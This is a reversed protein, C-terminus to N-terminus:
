SPMKEVSVALAETYTLDVEDGVELTKLFNQMDPDDVDVTREIKAPGIFSVVHHKHDIRTIKVRVRIMQEHSGGPTEGPAARSTSQAAQLPPASTGPKALEAAFAQRYTAIVKDGPKLQALNKVAPGATVTVLGGEPGRFLVQRTAQDVSEVTGSLQDEDQVTVAQATTLPLSIGTLVAAALSFRVINMRM